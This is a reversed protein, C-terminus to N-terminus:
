SLDSGEALMRGLEALAEYNGSMGQMVEPGADIVGAGIAALDRITTTLPHPAVGGLQRAAQEIIPDWDARRRLHLRDSAM